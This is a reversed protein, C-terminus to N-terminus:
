AILIILIILIEVAIFSFLCCYSTKQLYKDLRYNTNEVKFKTVHVIKELNKLYPDQNKLEEDLEKNSKHIKKVLTNFEDVMLDQEILLKIIKSKKQEAVIESLEKNELNKEKM